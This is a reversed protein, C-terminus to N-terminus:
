YNIYEYVNEKNNEDLWMVEFDGSYGTGDCDPCERENDCDIDTLIGSSENCTSCRNADLVRDVEKDTHHGQFLINGIWDIIKIM